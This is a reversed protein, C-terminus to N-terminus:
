NEESVTQDTNEEEDDKKRKWLLFIILLIFLIGLAIIIGRIYKNGSPSQQSDTDTDTNTDKNTDQDTNNGNQNGQNPDPTPEPEKEVVPIVETQTHGCISCKREKLGTDTNTPEKSTVWAGYSHAGKSTSRNETANCVSCTKTEQGVESCTAKKSVTWAGFKHATKDLEQEDNEKCESCTRTKIGKEKCTPQKTTSWEGWNHVHVVTVGGAEVTPQMLDTSSVGIKDLKVTVPYTGGVNTLVKFTATFLVGDEQITKNSSFGVKGDEVNGSFLGNLKEGMTLSELKLANKDYSIVMGYAKFGTNGEISVDIAVTENYKASKTDASLVTSAASVSITFSVLLIAAIVIAYLKKM